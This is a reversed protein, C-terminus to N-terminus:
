IVWRKVTSYFYFSGTFIVLASEFEKLISKQNNETIIQAKVHKSLENHSASREGPLEFFYKNEYQELLNLVESSMKDRMLSFIIVPEEDSIESITQLTSHLAQTNHAGSFYWEKDSFLQEFRGPAGKFASVTEIFKEKSVPFEHSLIEKTQYVAYVNWKNVEEKLKTQISIKQEPLSFLGKVLVPDLESASYIDANKSRAVESIVRENEESINGLVVPINEKIIGAKEKAIEVETNGLIDQHDLSISTIVSVKPTIINTSDLRGGLGTEIIAIDVKEEAFIWFALATSIEFYTLNSNRLEGEYKQFFELIKEDDIDKGSIRIRENYRLLHPSTFLGTKYGAHLYVAELLHCTTGKGNTGAVHISSFRNQPDGMQTCFKTINGLEFNAAVAGKDQFKPIKDLYEWIHNINKFSNM